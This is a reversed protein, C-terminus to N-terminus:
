AALSEYLLEGQAEEEQQRQRRKHALYAMNVIGGVFLIMTLSSMSFWSGTVPQPKAALTVPAAKAPEAAKAAKKPAAALNLVAALPSGSSPAPAAAADLAPAASDTAETANSPHMIRDANSKYSEDISKKAYSQYDDPVYLQIMSMKQDRWDKLEKMTTCNNADLMMMGQQQGNQYQQYKSAYQQMYQDKMNKYDGNSAKSYQKMYKSAYDGAYKDVYQQYNGGQQQQSGAAPAKAVDATPEAVLETMEGAGKPAPQKQSKMYKSAYEDMYQQYNGGQSGGSSGGSAYKDMYQQYNGASGSSGGTYQKAASGFKDIYQQYNGGQGGKGNMYSGAYQDMYQQYNGGQGGQGGKMYNGAYQDMYKQYDM